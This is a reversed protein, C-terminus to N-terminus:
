TSRRFELTWTRMVSVTHFKERLLWILYSQDVIGEHMGSSSRVDDYANMSNGIVKYYGPWVRIASQDLKKVSWPDTRPLWHSVSQM